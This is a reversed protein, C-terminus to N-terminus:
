VLGALGVTKINKAANADRCIGKTKCEPCDWVRVSLPMKENVFGCYRCRKSSPFWRDIKAVTRGAWEAKYELQRVFEGGWSADAIHKALKPNKLMNKVSLTEVCVVQNENILKRSLKHLHDLRCDAIKAHLRAM